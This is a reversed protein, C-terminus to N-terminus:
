IRYLDILPLMDKGSVDQMFTHAHAHARARAHRTRTHTHSVVGMM